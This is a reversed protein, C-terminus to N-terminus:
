SGISEGNTSDRRQNLQRNSRVQLNGNKVSTKPQDFNRDSYINQNQPPNDISMNM